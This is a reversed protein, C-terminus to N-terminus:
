KRYYTGKELSDLDAISTVPLRKDFEKVHSPKLPPPSGMEIDYNKGDPWHVVKKTKKGVGSGGRKTRPKTRTKSKRRKGGTPGRPANDKLFLSGDEKMSEIHFEKIFQRDHPVVYTESIEKKHKNIAGKFEDSMLSNMQDVEKKNRTEENDPIIFSDDPADPLSRFPSDLPQKYGAPVRIKHKQLNDSFRILSKEIAPINELLTMYHSKLQAKFPHQKKEKNLDRVFDVLYKQEKKLTTLVSRIITYARQFM